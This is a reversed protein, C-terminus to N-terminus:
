RESITRARHRVRSAPEVRYGTHAGCDGRARAEADFVVTECRCVLLELAYARPRALHDAAFLSEVRDSLRMGPVDLPVWTVGGEGDRRPAVHGAALARDVREHTGGPLALEELAALVHRRAERMREDVHELPSVDLEERPPSM